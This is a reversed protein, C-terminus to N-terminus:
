GGVAAAQFFRRRPGGSERNPDHRDDLFTFGHVFTEFGFEDAGFAHNGEIAIV